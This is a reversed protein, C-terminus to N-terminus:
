VSDTSPECAPDPDVVEPEPDAPSDTEPEGEDEPLDALLGAASALATALGVARDYVAAFTHTAPVELGPLAPPGLSRVVADPIATPRVPSAPELLEPVPLVGSPRVPASPRTDSRGGPRRRRTRSM